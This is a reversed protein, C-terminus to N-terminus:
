MVIKPRKAMDGRISCHWEIRQLKMEVVGGKGSATGADADGGVKLPDSQDVMIEVEAVIFM